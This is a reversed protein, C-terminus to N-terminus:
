GLKVWVGASRGYFGAGTGPDFNTGDALIIDGNRPKDPAVHLVVLRVNEVQLFASAIERLETIIYDAVQADIGTPPERPEYM